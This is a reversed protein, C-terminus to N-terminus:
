GNKIDEFKQKINKNIPDELLNLRIEQLCTQCHLFGQLTLEDSEGCLACLHVNFSKSNFESM